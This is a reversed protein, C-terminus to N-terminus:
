YTRCHGDTLWQSGQISTVCRDGNKFHVFFFFIMLADPLIQFKPNPRKLQRVARVVAIVAKYLNGWIHSITSHM